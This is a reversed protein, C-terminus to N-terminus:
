RKDLEVEMRVYNAIVSDYMALFLEPKQSFHVMTADFDEKTVGHKEFVGKYQGFKIPLKRNDDIVKQKSLADVLHIDTLLNIFDKEKIPPAKLEVVTHDKCSFFITILLIILGYKM